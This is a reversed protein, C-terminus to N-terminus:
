AGVDCVRGKTTLTVTAVGGGSFSINGHFVLKGYASEFKGTGGSVKGESNLRFVGPTDTASLTARIDALTLTDGGGFDYTKRTTTILDGDDTFKSGTPIITIEPHFLTDGIVLWANGVFPGLPVSRTAQEDVQVKECSTNGWASPAFLSLILMPVVAIAQAIFRRKANPQKM